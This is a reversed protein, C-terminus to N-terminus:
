ERARSDILITVPGDNTLRVKMDAAFEGTEVRLPSAARLAAAFHEYLDRARGPEAARIFSPRNGKRTSAHLTFQSVVLLGEGAQEVSLNMQGEADDFIRLRLIKGVLWEIDTEDDIREIGLLILLGKGIEGHIRADIEVSAHSVRQIVCRM